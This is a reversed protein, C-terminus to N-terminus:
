LVGCCVFPPEKFCFVNIISCLHKSMVHLMSNSMKHHFHWLLCLKSCCVHLLCLIKIKHLSKISCLLIYSKTPFYAFNQWIGKAGFVPWKQIFFLSIEGIYSMNSTFCMSKIVLRPITPFCAHEKHPGPPSQFRWHVVRCTKGEFGLWQLWVCTNQLLIFVLVGINVHIKTFNRWFGSM